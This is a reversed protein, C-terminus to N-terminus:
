SPPSFPAGILNTLEFRVLNRLVMSTSYKEFIELYCWKSWALTEISDDVVTIKHLSM